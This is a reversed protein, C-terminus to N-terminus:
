CAPLCPRTAWWGSPQTPLTWAPWAHGAPQRAPPSRLASPNNPEFPTQALPGRLARLIELPLRAADIPKTIFGCMGAKLAQARDTLTAAGTLAVIPPCREGLAKQM